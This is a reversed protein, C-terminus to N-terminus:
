QSKPSLSGPALKLGEEVRERLDRPAPRAGSLWESFTSPPVGLVERAFRWQVLARRALEGRFKLRDIKAKM